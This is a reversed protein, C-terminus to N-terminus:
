YDVKKRNTFSRVLTVEDIYELQSGMPLGMALHTINTKNEYLKALYLSTTEGEITPSLALILEDIGAEVKQTLQAIALDQPMVHNIPSILGGLVHYQGHFTETKEIIAIDTPHTVVCIQKPNRSKDQCIECLTDETYNGCNPCTHIAEKAHLIANALELVEQHPLSLIKLAYRQATKNGVSPLKKFQNILQELSKTM